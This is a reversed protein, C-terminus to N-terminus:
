AGVLRGVFSTEAEECGDPVSVRADPRVQIAWIARTRAKNWLIPPEGPIPVKVGAIEGPLADTVAKGAAAEVLPGEFGQWVWPEDSM